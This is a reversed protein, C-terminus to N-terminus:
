APDLRHVVIIHGVFEFVSVHTVHDPLVVFPQRRFLNGFYSLFPGLRLLLRGPLSARTAGGSYWFDPLQHYMGTEKMARVQGRVESRRRKFDRVSPWTAYHRM